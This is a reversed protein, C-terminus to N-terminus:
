AISGSRVEKEEEKEEDDKGRGDMLSDMENWVQSDRDNSCCVVMVNWRRKSEKM